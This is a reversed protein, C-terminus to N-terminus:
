YNDEKLQMFAKPHLCVPCIELAEESEYIYGCNRCQWLVKGDKKFVKDESINQLLKLYRREHEVEVKAVMKFAVSIEPFGEEKAVEAFTPYLSSWEEYEGEAAAKLNQKTTGIIGAPYSATIEVMGGELFKFFRKAHEKEQSATEMFIAAIQEYGEKKAVSAFFEYRNRAQSEGAFAKLLNQETKTGKLSKDM